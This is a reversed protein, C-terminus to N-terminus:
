RAETVVFDTPPLSSKAEPEYYPYASASGTTGKMPYAARLQYSLSLPEGYDVREVYLILQRGAVEYRQLATTPVADDLSASVLDFGPPLGIDVLLMRQVSDPVNNTLTVTATVLDDVELETRDYSIAVSVPGGDPEYPDETRPTWYSGVVSYMLNGEGSVGLTVQNQGDNRYASLDVLQLVDKNAENITLTDVEQGNASVVISAQADEVTAGLSAIMFKLAQITASTTSWEGFSGKNALLYDLINPVIDVHVGARIMAQGILATTEMEATKGNGYSETQTDQGWWIKQDEEQRDNYLAELIQDATTDNPDAALLAMAMMGKAYNDTADSRHSKLWQVGASVEGGTYGSEALAYTIYATTRLVSNSFNNIAGEHIGGSDFDYSGDGNQLNALWTQTRTIVAPDVSHVMSMDHFELLGYATLVRHAPTEGFWEFGGGSVEYSLLRQYGQNIFERASLEIEETLTDTQIMYDLVLVNPYTSSSTQEFCGSPMQLMSDLGEVVQSFLGPYVKVWMKSADEVANDPFTMTVTKSGDLRGSEAMRQEVGDPIVEVSRRIADNQASGQAIVTLQHWGVKLVKVPFYFGTVSNPDVEVERTAGSLFEVWDDAQAELQLTQAQELYNYVVVPVWVEDNQTLTAPFDIDVFFDQYVIVNAVNSGIQGQLSSALATLRWSTISDAMTMSIQAQGADDTLVNPDVFLTEPFWSRVRIESGSGDSDPDVANDDDDDDDWGGEADDWADDDDDDMMLAGDGRDNFYLWQSVQIDDDTGKKEDMGYSTMRLEYDSFTFRCAKGWPDFVPKSSNTQTIWNKLGDEGKLFGEESLQYLETVVDNFAQQVYSEAAAQAGDEVGAFTDMYLGYAEDTGSAGFFAGAYAERREAQESDEPEPGLIDGADFGHIEVSPTMLQEELNFYVKELGPKMESLAYVAEDVVQVGLVSQVGEGNIDSVQLDFTAEERPLFTDKSPTVEVTLSNALEVYLVKRDRIIQSDGGLYYAMLELTGSMTADLDLTIDGRGDDLSITEMVMTQGNRIVDLYVRDPLHAAEWGDNTAFVNVKLSDGVKYMAKDTRVLVYEHVSETSFYFTQSITEGDVETSLDLNLTVEEPLWTFTALGMPGSDVIEGDDGDSISIEVNLPKGNPDTAIVYFTNEVGPVINGSEPVVAFLVPKSIVQLTKTKVQKHGATDTVTMELFAHAEGQDLASGVFYNPLDLTFSWAGNDDLTGGVNAFDTMEVDYKSAKIAISGSSVPKGFFYDAQIAGHVTQGPRYFDRDTSLSFSFKPLSYKEVTVTKETADNGVTAAIAYSGENLLTALRWQTAFVGFESSEGEEKFVLNGKPDKVTLTVPLGAQPLLEPRKLALARMHITQGPQYMPKDTTLLIKAEREVTIPASIQESRNEEGINMEVSLTANGIVGQPLRVQIDTMGLADTSGSGVVEQGNDTDLMVTAQAGKVPRGSNPEEVILKYYSQGGEYLNATGLMQSQIYRFCKFLSRYGYVKSTSSDVDFWLVYSGKSQSDFDEPLMELVFELTSTGQEITRTEQVGGQSDHNLGQLEITVEANVAQEAQMPLLVVLGDETPYAELTAEDIKLIGDELQEDPNFPDDNGGGGGGGCAAMLVFVIMGLAFSWRRRCPDNGLRWTAKM